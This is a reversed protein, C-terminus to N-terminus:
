EGTSLPHPFLRELLLPPPDAPSPDRNQFTVNGSIYGMLEELTQINIYLKSTTWINVRRCLWRWQTSGNPEQGDCYKWTSPVTWWDWWCGSDQQQEQAGHYLALHSHPASNSRWLARSKDRRSSPDNLDEGKRSRYSGRGEQELRLM